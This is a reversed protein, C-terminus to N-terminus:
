AAFLRADKARLKALEVTSRVIAELATQYDRALQSVEKDKESGERPAPVLVQALESTRIRNHSASTGSTLSRIQSQAPETLLLYALCYASLRGTPRMVEFESSCLTKRELNPTVCVRPIRPNIRSLLLEGPYTPTGPSKPAYGLAGRVDVFGEGLIHLVSIFAWGMRWKEPRRVDSCFEVLEKLPIMEFQKSQGLLAVSDFRAASFHSPTWDGKAVMERAVLACSPNRNLVRKTEDGEFPRAQQYVEYIAPLDNHGAPTKVQAGKHSSVQFGLDRSVGMFIRDHGTPAGKQLYLVATKTRTGAQAFTVSPLEIVARLTAVKGLHQRLMAPTGKASIVGDPVVILLRGGERLLRLNRDIFLLESDILAGASDLRCFFPTNDACAQAIYRRDFRAGFPPNTLILDVTGNLSDLASGRELSNGLTIRHAEVRFLALNLSSLRVMRMVKDQGFLALRRPDLWASNRAKHYTAALFSGVGCTPDVVTWHRDPRMADTERMLDGLALDTMFNVVEPPTMYQADEINSRFNDRVFHGFAENLVDFPQDNAQLNYASDICERVLLVLRAALHEDGERLSLAPQPGFISGGGNLQYGPLAVAALFAAQLERLLAPAGPEPFAPIQGRKYALYTAFLKSIEDLKANSDDLRGSRHFEERLEALSDYIRAYTERLPDIASFLTRM